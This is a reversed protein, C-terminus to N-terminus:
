ESTSCDWLGLWKLEPCVIAKIDEFSVNGKQFVRYTKSKPLFVSITEAQEEINAIVRFKDWVIMMKDRQPRTQDFSSIVHPHFQEEMFMGVAVLFRKAKEGFYDDDTLEM